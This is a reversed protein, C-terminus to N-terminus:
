AVAGILYNGLFTGGAAGCIGDASLPAKRRPAGNSKDPRCSARQFVYSSDYMHVGLQAPPAVEM